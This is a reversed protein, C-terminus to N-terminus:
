IQGLAPIDRSCFQWWLLTGVSRFINQLNATQSTSTRRRNQCCAGTGKAGTTSNASVCSEPEQAALRPPEVGEPHVMEFLGYLTPKKRKIRSYPRSPEDEPQVGFLRQYAALIDGLTVLM